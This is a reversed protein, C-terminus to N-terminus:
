DIKLKDISKVSFFPVCGFLFGKIKDLKKVVKLVPIGLFYIRIIKKVRFFFEKCLVPNDNRIFSRIAYTVLEMKKAQLHSTNQEYDRYFLLVEELNYFNTYPILKGWLAYDEAPSFKEEYHINNDVLVSRRIMSSSHSVACFELLSLKIDENRIPLKSIRNNSLFKFRSGCVGVDKHMELFLVQMELRKPLSIDDHDFVAIYDGKALDLLKNRSASIGINNENKYYRIRNDTYSKIIEEVDNNDPSDNLIIFEFDTFTQALISEICERLYQPNTNYVPTLVSVKPM